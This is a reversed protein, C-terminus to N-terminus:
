DVGVDNKDISRLEEVMSEKWAQKKIAEELNLTKTNVFLAFHVVDGEDNIASNSFM